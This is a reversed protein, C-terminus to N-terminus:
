DVSGRLSHCRQRVFLTFTAFKLGCEWSPLSMATSPSGKCDVFKLGCEWSPLSTPEKPLESAYVSKLGCEWSPLSTNPESIGEFFPYKM